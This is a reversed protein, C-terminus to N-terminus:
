QASKCEMILFLNNSASIAPDPNILLKHTTIQFIVAFALKSLKRLSKERRPNWVYIYVLQLFKDIISSFKELFFINFSEFKM